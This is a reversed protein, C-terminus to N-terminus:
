YMGGSTTYASSLEAMNLAVCMVIASVVVWGWVAVQLDVAAAAAACHKLVLSM